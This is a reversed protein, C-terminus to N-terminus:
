AREKLWPEAVIEAPHSDMRISKGGFGSLSNIRASVGHAIVQDEPGALEVLGQQRMLQGM